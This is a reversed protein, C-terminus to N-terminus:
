IGFKHIEQATVYM